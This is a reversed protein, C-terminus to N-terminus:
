KAVRAEAGCGPCKFFVKGLGQGFSMMPAGGCFDCPHQLRSVQYGHDGQLHHKVLVEREAPGFERMDGDGGYLVTCGPVHIEFWEALHVYLLIDGREYGIDYWRGWLRAVLIQEEMGGGYLEAGDYFMLTSEGRYIEIARQERGPTHDIAFPGDGFVCGAQLGSAGGAGRDAM